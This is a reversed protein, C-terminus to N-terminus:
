RWSRTNGSFSVDEDVDDSSKRESSRTTQARQPQWDEDDSSEGESLDVLNRSDAARPDSAGVASAAAVGGRGRRAARGALAEAMEADWDRATRRQRQPPEGTVGALAAAVDSDPRAPVQRRRAFGRPQEEQWPDSRPQNQEIVQGCGAVSIHSQAAVCESTLQPPDHHPFEAVCPPTDM